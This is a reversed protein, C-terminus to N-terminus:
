GEANELEADKLAKFGEPDEKKLKVLYKEGQPTSALEGYTMEAFEKDGEKKDGKLRSHVTMHPKAVELLDTAAKEDQKYLKMFAEKQEKPWRGEEIAKDVMKVGEATKSEELKTELTALKEKAEKAEAALSRLQVLEQAQAKIEEAVSDETANDVDFDKNAMGLATAMLVIKKMDSKSKNALMEVLVSPAEHGQEKLMSLDDQTVMEAEGEINDILGFAKAEDAGMWTDGKDLTSSIEDKTKGTAESYAAIVEPKLKKVLKLSAELEDETGGGATSPKHIMIMSNKSAMRKGKGSCLLLTGASACLAGTQTNIVGSFQKMSNLMENGAFLSGGPTNIYVLIEAEGEKELQQLRASFVQQVKDTIVGTVLIKKM